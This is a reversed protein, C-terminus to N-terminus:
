KNLKSSYSIQGRRLSENNEEEGEDEELVLLKGTSGCFECHYKSRIPKIEGGEEDVWGNPNCMPCPKEKSLQM